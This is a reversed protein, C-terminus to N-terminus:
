LDLEVMKLYKYVIQQYQSCDKIKKSHVLGIMNYSRHLLHAQMDNGSKDKQL